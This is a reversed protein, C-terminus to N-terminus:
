CTQYGDALQKPNPEMGCSITSAMTMRGPATWSKNQAELSELHTGKQSNFAVGSGGMGSRGVGGWRLGWDGVGKLVIGFINKQAAKTLEVPASLTPAVKAGGPEGSKTMPFPRVINTMVKSSRLGGSSSRLGWCGWDDGGAVRAGPKAGCGHNKM